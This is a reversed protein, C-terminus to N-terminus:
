LGTIYSAYTDVFADFSPLDNHSGGEIVLLQKADAASADHLEEALEQPTIPDESGVMLLTPVTITGVRTTNSEAALEPQIDFKLFVRLLGPVLAK